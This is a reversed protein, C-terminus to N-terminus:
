RKLEISLVLCENKEKGLNVGRRKLGVRGFKQPDRHNTQLIRAVQEVLSFSAFFCFWDHRARFFNQRAERQNGPDAEFESQSM